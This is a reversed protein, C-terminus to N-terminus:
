RLEELLRELYNSSGLSMWKGQRLFKEIEQILILRDDWSKLKAKNLVCFNFRYLAEKEDSTLLVIFLVDRPNTILENNVDYSDKSFKPKNKEFLSAFRVAKAKFEYNDFCNYHIPADSIKFIPDLSNSIMHPYSFYNDKETLIQECLACTTYEEFILAMKDDIKKFIFFASLIELRKKLIIHKM